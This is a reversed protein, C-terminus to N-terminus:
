GGSSKLGHLSAEFGGCCFCAEVALVLLAGLRWLLPVQRAEVSFFAGPRWLLFLVHWAEM